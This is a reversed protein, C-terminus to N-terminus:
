HTLYAIYDIHIGFFFVFYSYCNFIILNGRLREKDMMSFPTTTTTVRKQQKKRTRTTTAQKKRTKTTMAAQQQKMNNENNKTTTVRSLGFAGFRM